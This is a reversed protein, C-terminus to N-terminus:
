ISRFEYKNIRLSRIRSELTSRPIGLKVAAGNQGFVRGGSNALAAEIRRKEEGAGPRSSRGRSHALSPAEQELWSPDITLVTGESVVGAREIVNQLERVNGPWRYSTLMEMAERPIANLWKNMRRAYKDAFHRVLPPIDESRERLPPISIPFVSLRYYLDRRFSRAAVLENLNQNTAAVLRVDVRRSDASGLREFEWEQLVRLLKPQLQPPLDGVEDLFMTGRDALEFRGVKRAVAGTFAGREHGFLESELLGEPIAACNTKIYPGNRRASSAHIARAVLEKGTGTEGMILVTTNTGAVMAVQRLVDLWAASKGVIDSDDPDAQLLGRSSM